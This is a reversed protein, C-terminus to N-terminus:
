PVDIDLLVEQAPFTLTFTTGDETNLNIEGKMQEILNTVLQMGFSETHKYDVNAPIGDGTDIVAIQVFRDDRKVSLKIVGSKKIKFAHKLSNLVLENIILGLNISSNINLNIKDIDYELRIDTGSTRYTMFLRNLLDNMYEKFDISSLTKSKYLQEHVIAMSRIRSQSDLFAELAKPDDIYGSQLNLLSSIIQLNNKVRHHIEQLLMDKENLITKLKAEALKLATIDKAYITLGQTSPYVTILYNSHEDINDGEFIAIRQDDFAKKCNERFNGNTLFPTVDWVGKEDEEFSVKGGDNKSVYVVEFNENMAFFMDSIRELIGSTQEYSEMLELKAKTIDTIDLNIGVWSRIRGESDKVPLGKSLIYKEEGSPSIFKHEQEWPLGERVSELWKIKIDEIDEGAIFSILGKQFVEERPVDLFNLLSQSIYELTGDPSCKWVGFPVTEGMIRYEEKAIWLEQVTNELLERAKQESNLLEENELEHLKKQTVNKYTIGIGDDMKYVMLRFWGQIGDSFYPIEKDVAKGTEVVEVYLDFLGEKKCGPFMGVLTKNSLDEDVLNLDDLAMSNMYGIEFDIIKNNQDRISNYFITCDLSLEQAAKFKKESIKLKEQVEYIDHIDTASGFWKIVTGDDDILPVSRGIFWRYEGTKSKIRLKTQIPGDPKNINGSTKILKVENPHVSAYLDMNSRSNELGTYEFYTRNLYEINHYKDAIYIINPVTDTIIKFKQESDRLAFEVRKREKIEEELKEKLARFEITREDVKKELENLNIAIQREKTLRNKFLEHNRLERTIATIILEDDNISLFDAAGEKIFERAENQNYNDSLVIVSTNHFKNKFKEIIQHIDFGANKIGTLVIDFNKNEVATSFEAESYVSTFQSPIASYTSSTLNEFNVGTNQLLLIQINNDNEPM